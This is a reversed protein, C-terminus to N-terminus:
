RGNETWPCSPCYRHTEHFVPTPCDAVALEYRSDDYLGLTEAEATLEDAVSMTAVRGSERARQFYRKLRGM